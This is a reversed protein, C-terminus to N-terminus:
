NSFEHIFKEKIIVLISWRFYIITLPAQLFSFYPIGLEIFYSSIERHSFCFNLLTTPVKFTTVIHRSFSRFWTTITTDKHLLFNTHKILETVLNIAYFM